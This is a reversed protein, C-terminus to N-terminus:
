ISYVLMNDDWLFMSYSSFVLQPEDERGAVLREVAAIFEEIGQQNGVAGPGKEGAEVLRVQLGAIGQRQGNRFAPGGDRIGINVILFGIDGASPEDTKRFGLRQAGIEEREHRALELATQGCAVSPGDRHIVALRIRGTQGLLVLDESQNEIREIIHFFVRPDGIREGFIIEDDEGVELVATHFVGAGREVVVPPNEQTFRGRRVLPKVPGLQDGVLGGVHPEAIIHGHAPEVVHPGFFDEGVPKGGPHGPGGEGFDIVPETVQLTIIRRGVGFVPRDAGVGDLAREVIQVIRPQDIAVDDVVFRRHHHIIQRLFHARFGKPLAQLCVEAGVSICVGAPIVEHGDQVALGIEVHLGPAPGPDLFRAHRLNIERLAGGVPPEGLHVSHNVAAIEQFFRIGFGAVAM